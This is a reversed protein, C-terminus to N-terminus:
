RRARNRARPIRQRQPSADAARHRRGGAQNARAQPDVTIAHDVPRACQSSRYEVIPAPDTEQYSPSGAVDSSSSSRRAISGDCETISTPPPADVEDVMQQLRSVCIDRHQVDRTDREVFGRCPRLRQSLDLPDLRIQQRPLRCATPIHPMVPRHQVEQRLLCDHSIRTSSAAHTPAPPANTIPVNASSPGASHRRQRYPPVSRTVEDVQETVDVDDLLNPRDMVRRTSGRLRETPDGATEPWRCLLEHRSQVMPCNSRARGPSCPAQLGRRPAPPVANPLTLTAVAPAARHRQQDARGLDSSPPPLVPHVEVDLRLVDLGLCCAEDPKARRPDDSWHESCPLVHIRMASGSPLSNQTQSPPADSQGTAGPVSPGAPRVIGAHHLADHQPHQRHIQQERHDTAEDLLHARSPAAAVRIAPAFLRPDAQKPPHEREAVATVVRVLLPHSRFTRGGGAELSM